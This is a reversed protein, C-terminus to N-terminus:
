RSTVVKAVSNLHDPASKETLIKPLIHHKNTSLFKVEELEEAAHSAKSLDLNIFDQPNTIEFFFELHDNKNYHFEHIYLVKGVKADVGLEELLERRIAPVLKEGSEVTGGPLCWYDGPIAEGYKKLRVCLLKNKYVIVGRVAIRTM